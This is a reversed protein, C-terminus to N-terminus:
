QQEQDTIAINEGELKLIELFKNLEQLKAPNEASCLACEFGHYECKSM